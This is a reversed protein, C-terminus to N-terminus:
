ADKVEKELANLAEILQDSLANLKPILEEAKRMKKKAAFQHVKEYLQHLVQHPVAISQYTVFQGLAVQTDPHYYWHGFECERNSVPQYEPTVELGSILGYAFSRWKIHAAKARTLQALIHQKEM